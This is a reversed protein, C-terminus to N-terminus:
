EAYAHEVRHPYVGAKVEADFESLAQTMLEAGALYRKVFKPQLTTQLGLLDHLVLVQGSTGPGAGIGITPISLESTVQEALGSPVCELVVAFCGAAQLALAQRVIAAAEAAARGQVRYGGLQNVAQPTLGLHGMVPVGAQVIREIVDVHGDCGELKVAHAGAQMLDQVAGMAVAVGQQYSLFPMDAILLKDSCARAVAAVHDRMMAVTAPVTSTMGHMVMAASDGILVADIATNAILRASWADYSTVMSVKGTLAAKGFQKINM